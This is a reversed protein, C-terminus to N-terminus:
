PAHEKSKAELAAFRRPTTIWLFPKGADDVLVEHALRNPVLVKRLVLDYMSRKAPLSMKIKALDIKDQALAAHDILIPVPVHERVAALVRPLEVEKLEVDVNDFLTPM